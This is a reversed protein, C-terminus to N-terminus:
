LILFKSIYDLIKSQDDLTENHFEQIYSMFEFNTLINSIKTDRGKLFTESQNSGRDSYRQTLTSEKAHIIVIKFETEPLDILFNYFKGNTLRDGEFLFNSNSNKIFETVNPQCSMGLRDTGAFTEGDDYKGLIYLNHKKNYMASVLKAPEVKEWELQEMFKRFLTTKGTGPRGGVAVIKKM